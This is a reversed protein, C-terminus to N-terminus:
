EDLPLSLSSSSQVLKRFEIFLPSHQGLSFSASLLRELQSSLQLRLELVRRELLCFERLETEPHQPLLTHRAINRTLRFFLDLEDM